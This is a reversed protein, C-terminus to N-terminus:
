ALDAEAHWADIIQQMDAPLAAQWAMPEQSDPHVLSLKTAHLAQRGLTGRFPDGRRGYSADGILPYGAHQLHVRIQHTRGTELRVALLCHRAFKETVRYHTVADRGGHRVVFRTRDKAHRGLPEDITAGAVPVGWVIAAYEREIERAQMARVLATQAEPTAAIVMLGTTDKDLRHVIGARAVRALEPRYHLLGNQLTGDAQGAGPHVTLGAPKNVVLLSEDEYFVEFEIHQPCVETSAEVVVPQVSLEMGAVLRAKPPLVQGDVTVQGERIWAQLRARSHAPLLSALVKDQRQGSFEEGLVFREPSPATQETM